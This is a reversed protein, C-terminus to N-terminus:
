WPLVNTDNINQAFPNYEVLIYNEVSFLNRVLQDLLCPSYFLNGRNFWESQAWLHEAFTAIKVTQNFFLM